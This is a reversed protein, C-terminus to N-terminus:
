GTDSGIVHEPHGGRQIPDQRSVGDPLNV